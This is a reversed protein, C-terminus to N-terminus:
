RSIVSQPFGSIACLPLVPFGEDAWEAPNERRSAGIWMHAVRSGLGPGVLGPRQPRRPPPSYRVVVTYQRAIATERARQDSLAFGGRPTAIRWVLRWGAADRSRGMDRRGGDPLPDCPTPSMATPRNQPEQLAASATISAAIQGSDVIL